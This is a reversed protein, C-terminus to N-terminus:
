KLLTYRSQQGVKNDMITTIGYTVENWIDTITNKVKVYICLGIMCLSCTYQYKYIYISHSLIM